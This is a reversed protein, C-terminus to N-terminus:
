GREALELERGLWSILRDLAPNGQSHAPTLIYYGGLHIDTQFLEVLRGAALDAAALIRSGLAIGQSARAADLGLSADWLRPGHLRHGTGVGAADFWDTWQRHSEEHILPWNPLDALSAPTGHTALWQPSALPFMRPRLLPRGTAALTGFDGFGIALDAEGSAFDPLSDTSRLVVDTGRLIEEIVALRPTLWRTALGPICWIRLIAGARASRLEGATNAILRFAKTVSAMLIQGEDTLVVGRPGATLLKRGMWSELNRVHRSVVTHSVGLDDAGKRMSGTRGTAEFARLMLLPPLRAATDERTPM